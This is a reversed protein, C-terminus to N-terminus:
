WKRKKKEREIGKEKRKSKRKYKGGKERGWKMNKGWIVDVSIGRPPLPPTNELIHVYPM